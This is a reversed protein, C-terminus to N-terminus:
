GILKCQMVPDLEGPRYCQDLKYRGETLYNILSHEAEEEHQWLAHVSLVPIVLIFEKRKFHVVDEVCLIILSEFNININMVDGHHHIKIAHPNSVDM